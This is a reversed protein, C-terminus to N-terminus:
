SRPQRGRGRRNASRGRKNNTNSSNNGDNISNSEAPRQVVSAPLLPPFLQASAAGRRAGPGMGPRSSYSSNSSSSDYQHTERNAGSWIRKGLAPPEPPRLGGRIQVSEVGLPFPKSEPHEKLCRLFQDDGHLSLLRWDMKTEGKQTKDTESFFKTSLVRLAGALSEKNRTFLVKPVMNTKFNKMTNKLLIEIETKITLADKPYLDYASGRYRTTAIKGRFGNLQDMDATKLYVTTM